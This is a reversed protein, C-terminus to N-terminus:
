SVAELLDEVTFPKTLVVHALARVDDPIQYMASAVVRRALPHHRVLVQLVEIGAVDPMMLDVIVVDAGDIAELDHQDVEWVKHGAELLVAGYLRAIDVDDEM